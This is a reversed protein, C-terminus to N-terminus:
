SCINYSILIIQLSMNAASHNNKVVFLGEISIKYTELKKEKLTRALIGLRLPLAHKKQRGTGAWQFQTEESSGLCLVLIEL